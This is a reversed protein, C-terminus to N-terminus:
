NNKVPIINGILPESVMLLLVDPKEKEVLDENTRYMWSDWIATTKRFNERLYMMPWYFYSDRVALLKPLTQDTNVSVVEYEDKYPFWFPPPYGAKVSFNAQSHNFVLNLNDEKLVDNFGMADALTGGNRLYRTFTIDSKTLPRLSPFDKKMRKIIASYAYFGGLCNWHNDTKMYLRGIKKAAILASKLDIFPIVTDKQIAAIVKDTQTGGPSRFYNNPLYEPYIEQSMPVFCVYFHIGKGRYYITRYHLETVITHIQDDSLNKKGQYILKDNKGNYLWGDKGIDVQDPVPSRRFYYFNLSAHAKLFVPRFIFYDNFWNEYAAPYPDLFNIDFIPKRALSRNETKSVSSEKYFHFPDNFFPILIWILFFFTLIGAYIDATRKM